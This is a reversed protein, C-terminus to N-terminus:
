PRRLRNGGYGLLNQEIMKLDLVQFPLGGAVEFALKGIGVRADRQADGAKGVEPQALLDGVTGPSFDNM